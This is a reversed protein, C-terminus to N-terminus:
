FIKLFVVFNMDGISFGGGVGSPFFLWKVTHDGDSLSGNRAENDTVM